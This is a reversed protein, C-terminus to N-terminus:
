LSIGESACKAAGANPAGAAASWSTDRPDAAGPSIAPCRPHLKPLRARVMYCWCRSRREPHPGLHGSFNWLALAGRSVGQLAGAGPGPTGRFEM